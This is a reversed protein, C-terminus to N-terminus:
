VPTRQLIRECNKYAVEIAYQNSSDMITSTTLEFVGRKIKQMRWFEKETVGERFPL